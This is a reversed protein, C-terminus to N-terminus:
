GGCNHSAEGPRRHAHYDAHIGDAGRGGATSHSCCGEGVAHVWQRFLSALGIALVFSVEIWSVRPHRM